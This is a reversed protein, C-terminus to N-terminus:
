KGRELLEETKILLEEQTGYIKEWTKKGSHIGNAGRHYMTALPIVPRHLRKAPFGHGSCHHLEVDHRGSIACSLSAVQNYYERRQSATCTKLWAIRSEKDM